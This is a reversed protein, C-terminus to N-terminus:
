RGRSYELYDSYGNERAWLDLRRRMWIPEKLFDGLRTGSVDITEPQKSKLSEPLFSFSSSFEPM